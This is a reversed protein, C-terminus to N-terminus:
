DIVPILGEPTYENHKRLQYYGDPLKAGDPSHEPHYLKTNKAEFYGFIFTDVNKIYIKGGKFTHSNGTRGKVLINTKEEKLNEPLKDIKELVIEGHRYAKIM